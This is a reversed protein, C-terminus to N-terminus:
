ERSFDRDPRRTDGNIATGTALVRGALALGRLKVRVKELDTRKDRKPRMFFNSRKTTKTM